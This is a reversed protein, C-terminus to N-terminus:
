IRGVMILSCSSGKLGEHFPEAVPVQWSGASGDAAWAQVWFSCGNTRFRSFVYTAKSELAMWNQICLVESYIRCICNKPILLLMLWM